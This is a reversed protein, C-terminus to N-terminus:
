KQTIPAEKGDSLISYASAGFSYSPKDRGHTIDVPDHGFLMAHCILFNYTVYEETVAKCEWHSTIDTVYHDSVHKPSFTYISGGNDDKGRFLYPLDFTYSKNDTNFYARVPPNVKERVEGTTAKVDKYMTPEFVPVKTTVQLPAREDSCVGKFIYILPHSRVEDLSSDVWNGFKKRGSFFAVDRWETQNALVSCPVARAMQFIRHLDGEETYRGFM